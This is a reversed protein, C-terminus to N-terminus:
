SLSQIESSLVLRRNESQKGIRFNDPLGTVMM